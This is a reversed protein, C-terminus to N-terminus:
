LRIARDFAIVVEIRVIDNQQYALGNAANNVAQPWMGQLEWERTQNGEPDTMVIRGKRKYNTALKIKGDSPNYVKKRWENIVRSVDESIFDKVIIQGFQFQAKGAVWHRENGYHLEIPENSNSPLFASDIALEIIKGGEPFIVHWNFTRQPEYGGGQPALHFAGVSAM